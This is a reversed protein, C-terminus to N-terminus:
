EDIHLMERYTPYPWLDRAILREADDSGRRVAEMLPLAEGTIKKAADCASLKKVAAM